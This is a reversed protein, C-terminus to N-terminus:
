QDPFGQHNEGKKAVNYQPPSGFPSSPTYPPPHSPLPPPLPPNSSPPPPNCPSKPPTNDVVMDDDDDDDVLAMFRKMEVVDKEVKSLRRGLFRTIKVPQSLQSLITTEFNSSSEGQYVTATPIPTPMPPVNETQSSLFATSPTSSSTSSLRIHKNM